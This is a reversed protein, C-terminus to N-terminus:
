QHQWFKQTPWIIMPVPRGLGLFSLMLVMETIDVVVMLMTNSANSTNDTHFSVAYAEWAEPLPVGIFGTDGNAYSWEM